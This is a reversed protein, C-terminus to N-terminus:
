WGMGRHVIVGSRMKFKFLLYASFLLIGIFLISFFISIGYGIEQGSQSNITGIFSFFMGFILAYAAVFILIAALGEWLWLELDSRPEKYEFKKFLRYPIYGGLFASFIYFPYMVFPILSSYVDNNNIQLNSLGLILLVFTGYWVLPNNVIGKLKQTNIKRISRPNFPREPPEEEFYKKHRANKRAEEDWIDFIGRVREKEEEQKKRLYDKYDVCAHDEPKYHEECFFNNCYRCKKIAVKRVCRYCKKKAV